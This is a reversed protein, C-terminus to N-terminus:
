ETDGGFVQTLRQRARYAPSKAYETLFIRQEETLRQGSADMEALAEFRQFRAEPDDTKPQKSPQKLQTVAAAQDHSVRPSKPAREHPPVLKVVDAKPLNEPSIPQSPTSMRAAIEKATLEKHLRKADRTAKMFQNRKRGHEKADSKKLFDGREVLPAEGLYRGDLDYVHVPQHLDDPDFRAVVRQGAINLMWESWFRNGYVKLEGNTRKAMVPEAAMLWLRQQEETAVRPVATKYSANFVEDFSRHFATETRRDPRANHDRIVQGVVALVAEVEAPKTGYVDTKKRPDNGSQAGHLAPHTPIRRTLDLFAREIPKAQGWAPSAWHLEIGLQPFLGLMDDDKDKFRYRTEVGGTLIKAAFERGNDMLVHEPLGHQRVVDGFCLRVTEANPHLSMRWALIKGSYIDSFVVIQPRQPKEEGPWDVFLDLKHYDAQIAEMACMSQRSREQHPYLRKLAHVGERCLVEVQKPVDEQYRRRCTHLPPIDNIGEKRAFELSHEYAVQFTIAKDRLYDSKFFRFFPQNIPKRKRKTARHRPALAALRHEQPVGELMSRWNFVTRQSVSLSQAVADAAAVLTMGARHLDDIETVAALRKRAVAKANDPLADFFAWDPSTDPKQMPGEADRLLKRQAALPLVKWLYEWGGGRGTKRRACGPQCRWSNARNNIGRKTRPMDPLEAALLQDVTWWLREPARTM